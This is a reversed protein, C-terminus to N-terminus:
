RKRMRELSASIRDRNQKHAAIERRVGPYDAADVKRLMALAQGMAHREEVLADRARTIPTEIPGGDLGVTRMIERYKALTFVARPHPLGSRDPNSGALGDEDRDYKGLQDFAAPALGRENFLKSLRNLGHGHPGWVGPLEARPWYPGVLKRWAEAKRREDWDTLDVARGGEWIGTEPNQRGLHTGASASAGGVGQLITLRYDLELEVAVCAAATAYDLLRGRFVTRDYPDPISKAM